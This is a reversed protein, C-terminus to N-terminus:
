CLIPPFIQLQVTHALQAASLAFQGASVLGPLKCVNQHQSTTKSMLDQLTTQIVLDQARLVVFLIPDVKLSPREAAVVAKCVPLRILHRV